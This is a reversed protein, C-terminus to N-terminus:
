SSESDTGGQTKTDPIFQKLINKLTAVSFNLGHELYRQKWLSEYMELLELLRNALDTKVTPPLNSIGLNVVSCGAQSSPNRGSVVLARGIKVSLLMLDCTLQLETVISSGQTCKLEAAKLENQCKRVHRTVRQLIEPTLNEIPSNDPQILFQYLMSGNDSPLDSCDDGTQCRACRLLYTEARGLEVIAHGIVGKEARFIHLNLLEELNGLCFEWHCDANWSLGAGMLFGPWCFPLHTIHGKGSWNCVITGMAGDSIACKVANYVNTLAAEPCGALSNWASTGPCVLYNMGQKSLPKCIETFNHTAQVGYENFVLHPPLQSLTNPNLDHLPYGCLQITQHSRVPLMTACDTVNLENDEDVDLLFSSLRPGVSVFQNFSFCTLFDQFVPYMQQLDDYQVTPAVELVPILEIGYDHCFEDLETIEEMGYYVQWAIQELNRFRTYLYIQNVKLSSLSLVTEKFTEMNPVRGQSIDFLVGRYPLDPWDDIRLQPLQIENKKEDRYMRFLQVLTSIAYHLSSCNNSLVKIQNQMITLKYSGTGPCLRQSVCCVIHPDDMDSLPTFPELALKLNMDEFKSKQLMWVKRIDRLAAGTAVSIMVPLTPKRIHFPYGEQQEISQPQPWLRSLKEETVVQPPKMSVDLVPSRKFVPSMLQPTAPGDSPTPSTVHNAVRVSGNPLSLKLHNQDGVVLSDTSAQTELQVTDVQIVAPPNNLVKLVEPKGEALEFCTKGASKGHSIQLAPDAGYQLLCHVIEHNGRVVADHLPSGGDTNVAHVDAGHKCLCEVTKVDAFSAAWHLPSNLSEKSDTFNLSVGGKILQEVQDINSQSAAQLLCERYASKTKESASVSYAFKGDKNLVTTDAGASILLRVIDFQDEKSSLHLLTEGDYCPEKLVQNLLEPHEKSEQLTSVFSKVVDSRGTKVAVELQEAM